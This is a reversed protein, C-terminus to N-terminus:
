EGKDPVPPLPKALIQWHTVMDGHVDIAEYFSDFDHHEVSNHWGNFLLPEGDESYCGKGNLYTAIFVYQKQDHARTCAVWFDDENGRGINPVGDSVSIWGSVPIVAVPPTPALALADGWKILMDEGAFTMAAMMDSTPVKQVMLWGDPVSMPNGTDGVADAVYFQMLPSLVAIPLVSPLYQAYKSPGLEGCGEFPACMSQQQCVRMTKRCILDSM